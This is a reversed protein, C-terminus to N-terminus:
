TETASVVEVTTEVVSWETVEIIEHSETYSVKALRLMQAYERADRAELWDGTPPPCRECAAFIERDQVRLVQTGTNLTQVARGTSSVLDFFKADENALAKKMKGTKGIQRRVLFGRSGIATRRREKRLQGFASHPQAPDRKRM